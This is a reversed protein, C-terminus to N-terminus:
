YTKRSKSCTIMPERQNNSFRNAINGAVKGLQACIGVKKKLLPKQSREWSECLM